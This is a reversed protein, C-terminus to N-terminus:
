ARFMFVFLVAGAAAFVVLPANEISQYRAATALADALETARASIPGVSEGGNFLEEVRERVRPDVSVVALMVLAFAATSAGIQRLTGNIRM